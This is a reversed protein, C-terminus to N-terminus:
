TGAVRLDHARGQHRSVRQAGKRDSVAPRSPSLVRRCPEVVGHLIPREQCRSRPIPASLRRCALSMYADKVVRDMQKSDAPDYGDASVINMGGGENFSVTLLGAKHSLMKYFEIQQCIHLLQVTQMDQRGVEREDSSSSSDDDPLLDGESIDDLRDTVHAYNVRADKRAKGTPDITTATIDTYEDRLRECENCLHIYLQTGLLPELAVREEEELYGYLQQPRNWRATPM